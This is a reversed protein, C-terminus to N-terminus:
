PKNKTADRQQDQEKIFAECAKTGLVSNKYWIGDRRMCISGSIFKCDSCSTTEENM